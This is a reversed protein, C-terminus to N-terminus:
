IKNKEAEAIREDLYLIIHDAVKKVQETQPLIGAMQEIIRRKKMQVLTEAFNIDVVWGMQAIMMDNFTKLESYDVRRNNLVANLIGQSCDETDPFGMSFLYQRRNKRFDDINELMVYYIDLKDADRVLKAFLEIDEDLGDPLAKVNHLAVAKKIITMETESLGALLNKQRIIKLGLGSHGVSKADNYTRYKHFQEFRGLDHLLGAAEALIKQQANMGLESATLVIEDCVRRTHDEKLRINQNAFEDAGYFGAVYDYFWKKLEDLRRKEM